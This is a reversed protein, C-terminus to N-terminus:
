LGSIKRTERLGQYNVQEIWAHLKKIIHLPAKMLDDKARETLVIEFINM